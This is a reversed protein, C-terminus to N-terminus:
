NKRAQTHDELVFHVQNKCIYVNRTIRMLCKMLIVENQIM